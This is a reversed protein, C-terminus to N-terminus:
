RIKGVIGYLARRASPAAASRGSGIDALMAIGRERNDASQGFTGDALAVAISRRAEAHLRWAAISMFAKAMDHDKLASSARSAEYAAGSHGTESARAFWSLASDWQDRSSHFRGLALQGEVDAALAAQEFLALARLPDEPELQRGAVVAAHTHGQKAAGIYWQLAVDEGRIFQYFIGVRMQAEADGGEATEVLWPFLDENEMNPPPQVDMGRTGLLSIASKIGGLAAERLNVPAKARSEPDHLMLLQIRGLKFRVDANDPEESLAEECYFAGFTLGLLEKTTLEGQQPRELYASEAAFFDCEQFNDYVEGVARPPVKERLGLSGLQRRAAEYDEAAASELHGVGDPDSLGLLAVGLQFRLRANDPEARVAERCVVVVRALHDPHGGLYIGLRLHDTEHAGLGDCLIVWDRPWAASVQPAGAPEGCELAYGGVALAAEALPALEEPHYYTTDDFGGNGAVFACAHALAPEREGRGSFLMALRLQADPFGANASQALLWLSWREVQPSAVFENSLETQLQGIRRDLSERSFELERPKELLLWARETEARYSGRHIVGLAWQGIPSGSAAAQGILTEGRFVLATTDGFGGEVLALGVATQSVPHGQNAAILHFAIAMESDGMEQARLAARHTAEAPGAPAPSRDVASPGDGLNGFEFDLEFLELTGEVLLQVESPQYVEGDAFTGGSAALACLYHRAREVDPELGQFQAHVQALRLQAKPYGQDAAKTLLALGRQIKEGSNVEEGGRLLHTAVALQAPAYGSQAAEELLALESPHRSPQGLARNVVVGALYQGVDLDQEAAVSLWALAEDRRGAELFLKAAKKQAGIHGQDAAKLIWHVEDRGVGTLHIAASLQAKLHGKEAAAVTLGLSAQQDADGM